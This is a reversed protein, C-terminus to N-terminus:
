VALRKRAAMIDKAVAVESEDVLRVGFGDELVQLLMIEVYEADTEADNAFLESIQGALWDRKDSSDPRGWQGTVAVTLILWNFLTHWIRLHFIIQM